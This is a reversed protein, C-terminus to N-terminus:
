FGELLKTQLNKELMNWGDSTRQRYEERLKYLESGEDPLYFDSMIYHRLFSKSSIFEEIRIYGKNM